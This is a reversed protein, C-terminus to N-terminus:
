MIIDQLYARILVADKRKHNPWNLHTETEESFLMALFVRVCIFYGQEQMNKEFSHEGSDRLCIKGM